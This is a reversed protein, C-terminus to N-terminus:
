FGIRMAVRRTGHGKSGLRGPRTGGLCAGPAVAAAAPVAVAAAVAAPGLTEGHGCAPELGERPLETAALREARWPAGVADGPLMFVFPLVDSLSDYTPLAIFKHDFM